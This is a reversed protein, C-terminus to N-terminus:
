LDIEHLNHFLLLSMGMVVNRIFGCQVFSRSVRTFVPLIAQRYFIQEAKEIQCVGHKVYLRSASYTIVSVCSTTHIKELV